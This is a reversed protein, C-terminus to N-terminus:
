IGTLDTVIIEPQLFNSNSLSLGAEFPYITGAVKNQIYPNGCYGIFINQPVIGLYINDKTRLCCFAQFFTAIAPLGGFENYFSVFEDINTNLEDLTLHTYGMFPTAQNNKYLGYIISKNATNCM